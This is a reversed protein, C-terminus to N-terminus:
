CPEQLGSIWLVFTQLFVCWTHSGWGPDPRRSVLPGPLLPQQQPRRQCSTDPQACHLCGQRYPCWKTSEKALIHEFLRGAPSAETCVDGYKATAAKECQFLCMRQIPFLCTLDSSIPNSFCIASCFSHMSQILLVPSSLWAAQQEVIQAELRRHPSAPSTFLCLRWPPTPSLMEACSGPSLWAGCDWEQQATSPGLQWWPRHHPQLQTGACPSDEQLLKM